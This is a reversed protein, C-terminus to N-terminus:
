VRCVKVKGDSGASVLGLTRAHAPRNHSRRGGGRPSACSGLERVIIGALATVPGAHVASICIYIYIYIYIYAPYTFTDIYMCAYVCVDKYVYM